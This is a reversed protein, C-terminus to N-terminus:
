RAVRGPDVPQGRVPDRALHRAEGLLLAGLHLMRDDIVHSSADRHDDARRRIAM